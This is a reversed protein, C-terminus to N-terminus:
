QHPTSQGGRGPESPGYPPVDGQGSSHQGQQLQGWSQQAHGHVVGHGRVQGMSFVMWGSRWGGREPWRGPWRPRAQEAVLSGALEVVQAGVQVVAQAGM